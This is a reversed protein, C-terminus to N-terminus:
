RGKRMSGSNGRFGSFGRAPQQNRMGGNKIQLPQQVQRAPQTFQIPKPNSNTRVPQYQQYQNNNRASVNTVPKVNGNSRSPTTYTSQNVQNRSGKSPQYYNQAVPTVTTNTRGTNRYVNNAAQNPTTNGRAGAASSYTNPVSNSMVTNGRQAQTNGYTVTGGSTGRYGYQGKSSQTSVTSPTINSRASQYTQSAGSRVTQSGSTSGSAYSHTQGGKNVLTANRETVKSGSAALLQYGGGGGSQVPSTKSVSGTQVQLKQTDLFSLDSPAAQSVGQKGSSTTTNEVVTSKGNVALFDLNGLNVPANSGGPDVGGPNGGDTGGPDVGGPGGGDGGDGGDGPDVGGPGGDDPDGTTTTTTNGSDTIDIDISNDTISNDINTVSNDINWNVQPPPNNVWGCTNCLNGGNGYGWGNTLSWLLDLGVGPFNPQNQWAFCGNQWTPMGWGAQVGANVFGYPNYGMYNGGYYDYGDRAMQSALQGHLSIDVNAKAEATATGGGSTKTTKVTDVRVVEVIEPEVTKPKPPNAMGIVSALNGCSGRYAFMPYDVGEIELYFFAIWEGAKIKKKLLVMRNNCTDLSYVEMIGDKDAQVYEVTLSDLITRYQAESLVDKSPFKGKEKLVKELELKQTAHLLNKIEVTEFEDRLLRLAEAYTFFEGRYAFDAVDFAYATINQLAYKDANETDDVTTTVATSKNRFGKTCPDSLDQGYTQGAVIAAFVFILLKKM